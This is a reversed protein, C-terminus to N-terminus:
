KLSHFPVVMCRTTLRVVSGGGEHETEDRGAALLDVTYIRGRSLEPVWDRRTIGVVVTRIRDRM